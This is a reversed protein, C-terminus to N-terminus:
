NQALGDLSDLKDVWDQDETIIQAPANDKSANQRPDKRRAEARRDLEKRIARKANSRSSDIRDLLIMEKARTQMAEALIQDDTIGCIALKVRAEERAEDDTSYYAHAVSEPSAIHGGAVMRNFPMLLHTLARRLANDVLATNCRNVREQEWSKIALQNVDLWDSLSNPRHEAVFAKWWKWYAEESEGRIIPPAAVLSKFQDETMGNDESM